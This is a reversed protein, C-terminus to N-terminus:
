NIKVEKVQTPSTLMIMPKGKYDIITGTVCINKNLYYDKPTGTTVVTKFADHNAQGEITATLLTDPYPKDLNIYTKVKEANYDTGVVTGCVTQNQGIYKIADAAAIPDAAFTNTIICTASLLVFVFILKKM